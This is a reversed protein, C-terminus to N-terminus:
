LPVAEALASAAVEPKLLAVPAIDVSEHLLEELQAKLTVIPMLGHSVDFDVLLDIDSRTHADGRAVSGFLRVDRVGAARALRLIEGRNRRLLSARGGSLDTAIAPVADLSLHMGAARLVRELTSVSPSVAGTEYRAIAAQSTGARRALEAQNLGSSSRAARVLDGVQNM